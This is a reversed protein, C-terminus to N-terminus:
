RAILPLYLTTNGSTITLTFTMVDSVNGAADTATVTVPYEGPALGGEPLAGDTPTATALDISWNGDPDASTTYTVSAGGGLDIVVTVTSSPEATGSVTPYPNNTETTTPAGPPAPAITDTVQVTTSTTNTAETDLVTTGTVTVTNTLPGLPDSPQVTYTLTGNTAAGPALSSTDLTVTGLTDVAVVPDLLVNGTNTVRYSYTITDGAEASSVDPAVSIAIAPSSTVEVSASATDSVDIGTSTTGTLTVTNALTPLDDETVLHTQTGTAREGPALSSTSLTVNGFTDIAVVPDLTVNGTNTFHYSYTIEEGVEASSTSPTVSVTISPMPVTVVASSSILSADENCTAKATNTIITGALVDADVRVAFRMTVTTNTLVTLNDALTAGTPDDAPSGDIELSGAVFSLGSPLTDSVIATSTDFEGNNSLTLTYTITDGPSPETQGATKTLVLDVGVEYAGLDVVPATGNGTDATDPDDVFRAYGDLDTASLPQVGSTNTDTDADNDGADIAPSGPQLRYDGDITPAASAGVPGIFIPDTDINNGGDTGLSTDWGAGSGGSGEILSYTYSPTSSVLHVQPGSITATNGWLISNQITPNSDDNYMGGGNSAQNGSFTVNTLTPGRVFNSSNVMGGGNNTAQNGSFTVNKLTPNSNSNVM